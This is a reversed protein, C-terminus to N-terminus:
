GTVPPTFIGRVGIRKGSCGQGQSSALPTITLIGKKHMTLTRKIIGKSNSPKTRINVKPGKIRVRVGKVAKRAQTLYITLTTKRGVILHGPTIRSVAVCPPTFPGVQVQATATNNALNAEPRDGSVVVTNTQAGIQSPATVLTITVKEGAAMPGITCHLIAGGTCSGKTTQASVFTNGSPMPDSVTVGTDDDPGNNTVVMTWTITANPTLEQNDPSGSKTISLDVRFACSESASVPNPNNGNGTTLTATNDYTGCETESTSAVIHVKYDAGAPLTTSDLSLTQSGKAGSLVFQGPNGVTSDISWTVGSGSGAPLPDVLKVGTAAGSGTNKVEVTFGIQDGANVPASHDATKTISVAPAAVCTSATSQGSGDNTTTVSGTNHIVGSGGPCVGGTAATTPSTIHVTFTSNAQTTGAPVTVPGCTLVGASISCSSPNGWGAGSSEISWSLGAKVPLTDSLTVGHADGIGDNYVTLTFGIPDGANVQANDATKVIHISPGAVCVSASSQDSGDNTTTVTGTNNVVGSGPQCSGGTTRDTGSVIHVKFTSATQTTGAPVTVPGCTLVGLAIACTSPNGWGAGTSEISWSLGPNTPLPDSLQVGHADGSGDNYVTLTFGIQEGANVQAKDATKVIHISPAAVCTSASSHDSGANTTTVTGTNNVVGSGRPCVGGTTKDTGSVIHVTFTSAAQTTGAPVTVPGCTLVGSAIGCTSPNGWGAGSSEISWSLGSKVPLTDSLQVGHADGLGDNYVTLKFGIQEGANVQAKDATKVIHIAPANVVVQEDGCGSQVSVNNSDGGYTAVWYYNGATNLVVGNPTEYTANGNTVNATEEFVPTGSCSNNDYLDFKIKGTPSGGGSLTAKDKYTDGVSGSAPDQTTEISPTAKSISFPECDGTSGTYNSDGSYVAQYSYDGANLAATETSDPVNGSSDLTVTEASGMENGAKCTLGTYLQYTVTGTPTLPTATVTATDHVKSGFPAPHTTDVTNGAHDKVVTATSSGAQNVNFPECHGTSTAYNSDGSYVAQYSYSGAALPATTNSNPVSGDPNLTVTGADTGTGQCSDNPFLTYSVTGTPVILGQQGSVSATDYATAGTTETSSWPANTTADFVTTTTSTSTLGLSFPECTGTSGTYNADGSYTARFGYNGAALPGVTNSNPVSGDPKLTV